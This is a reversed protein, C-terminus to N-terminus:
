RRASTIQASDATRGSRSTVSYPQVTSAKMIKALAGKIKKKGVHPVALPHILLLYYPCSDNGAHRNNSFGYGANTQEHVVEAEAVAAQTSDRQDKRWDSQINNGDYCSKPSVFRPKKSAVPNPSEKKQGLHLQEQMGKPSLKPSNVM